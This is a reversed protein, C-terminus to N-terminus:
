SLVHFNTVTVYKHGILKGAIGFERQPDFDIYITEEWEKGTYRKGVPYM